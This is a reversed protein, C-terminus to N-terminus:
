PHRRTDDLAKKGNDFTTDESPSFLPKADKADQLPECIYMRMKGKHKDENEANKFINM